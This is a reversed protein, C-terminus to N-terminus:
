DDTSKDAYEELNKIEHIIAAIIEYPFGKRQLTGALRREKKEPPLDEMGRLKRRALRRAIAIEEEDPYLEALTDEGTQQNVGRKNLEYRILFKGALKHEMGLRIHDEAIAREDIYGKERFQIAVAEAMKGPAGKKRLREVLERVTLARRSLMRLAINQAQEPNIVTM